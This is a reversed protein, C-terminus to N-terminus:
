SARNGYYQKLRQYSYNIQKAIETATAYKKPNSAYRDPHYQALQSKYARQVEQWPAGVPVELNHFDRVLESPVGGPRTGPRTGTSDHGSRHDQPDGDYNGGRMFSELEEWAESMDPDYRGTGADSPEDIFSDIIRNLKDFIDVVPAIM